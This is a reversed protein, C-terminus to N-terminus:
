WEEELDVDVAPPKAPTKGAAMDLLFTLTDFADRDNRLAEALVDKSDDALASYQVVFRRMSRLARKTDSAEDLDAMGLQEEIYRNLDARSLGGEGLPLRALDLFEDLNDRVWHKFKNRTGVALKSSPAEALRPDTADMKLEGVYYDYNKRRMFETSPTLGIDNVFERWSEAYYRWLEQRHLDSLIQGSVMAKHGDDLSLRRLQARLQEARAMREDESPVQNLLQKPTLETM